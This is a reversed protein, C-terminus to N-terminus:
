SQVFERWGPIDWPTWVLRKGEGSEYTKLLTVDSETPAASLGGFMFGTQRMRPCQRIEDENRRPAM